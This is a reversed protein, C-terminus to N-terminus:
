FFNCGNRFWIKLFVYLVVQGFDVVGGKPSLRKKFSGIYQKHPEVKYSKGSNLQEKHSVYTPIYNEYDSDSM